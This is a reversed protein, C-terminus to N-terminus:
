ARRRRRRFPGTVEYVAGTKAARQSAFYMRTGSPDFAVGTLESGAHEPGTVSLFKTVERSPAIVGIDIERTAIDECVFVEGAASATMQDVRLLPAERSALGDYIVAVRERRTDYAHVRSDSTTAVYVTGEDFWIGEARAFRAAGEVQRRTPLRRAAPDPVRRWRVAGGRGVAAIELSGASLDPWREPTFRYFGGEDLDETLYVRKGVPDVAAAEHRFVGMAPHVIAKRRGAPDCEWVRGDEIEECSLWTGWPTPGGSCNMTTGDLIRYADAIAGDPGFRIAGAGGELPSESNSALIWGGDQTPFTAAGDSAEHWVYGSRGVPKGGRAIVRSRFGEPLRVGNADPSRLPGYGDAPRRPSAGDGGLLDTWFAAGLALAAAGGAAAGIVERRRYAPQREGTEPRSDPAAGGARPPEPGSVV